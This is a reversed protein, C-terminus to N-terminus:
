FGGRKAGPYRDQLADTLPKGNLTLEDWVPCDLSLVKTGLIGNIL